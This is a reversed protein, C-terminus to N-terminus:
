ARAQCRHRSATLQTLANQSSPQPLNTRRGDNRGSSLPILAEMQREREREQPHTPTYTHTNTISINNQNQDKKEEENNLHGLVEGLGLLERADAGGAGVDLIHDSTYGLTELVLHTKHVGMEGDVDVKLLTSSEHLDTVEEALLANAGDRHKLTHLALLGGIDLVLENESSVRDLVDRARAREEVVRASDRVTIDTLEQITDVDGLLTDNAGLCSLYFEPRGGRWNLPAGWGTPIGTNQNARQTTSVFVIKHQISSIKRRQLKNSRIQLSSTPVVVVQPPPPSEM